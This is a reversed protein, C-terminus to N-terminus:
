YWEKGTGGCAQCENGEADKGTGKCQHCIHPKM